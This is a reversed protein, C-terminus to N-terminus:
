NVLENHTENTLEYKKKAIPINITVITCKNLSSEINFDCNYHKLLKVVTALGLGNGKQNLKDKEFQNFAGISNIQDQTMGIGHDEIEITYLGNNIYGRFKLDQGENSFKCGNCLLEELIFELHYSAFEVKCSEFEYKITKGRCKNRIHKLKVSDIVDEIETQEIDPNPSFYEKFSSLLNVDYYIIFKEITKHLRKGTSLMQGVLDVIEDKKMSRHEDSILESVGLISVLPTRMEHPVSISINESIKKVKEEFLKKKDLRTKVASLLDDTHYPKTLYDDAGLSMGVRIDDSNIKATLFIFPVTATKDNQQMKTILEHGNMKPMMIDSIVLDPVITKIVKLADVGDQAQLVQYDNLELIEALNERVEIEDEVILIKDM